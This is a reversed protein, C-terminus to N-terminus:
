RAAYHTAVQVPTLKKNWISWADMDVAGGTPHQLNNSTDAIGHTYGTSADQVGNLYILAKGEAGTRGTPTYNAYIAFLNADSVSATGFPDTPTGDIGTVVTGDSVSSNKARHTGGTTEVGIQMVVSDSGLIAGSVIGLWVDGAQVSCSLPFTVWRRGTTTLRQAPSQTLLQGPEGNDDAYVVAVLDQPTVGADSYHNLDAVVSTIQGKEQITHKSVQLNNESTADGARYDPPLALLTTGQVQNGFIPTGTFDGNYVGAVHYITNAVLTTASVVTTTNGSNSLVWWLKMGPTAKLEYSSAKGMVTVTGSPASPLRFWGELAAGGTTGDPAALSSSVSDAVIWSGSSSLRLASGGSNLFGAILTGGTVVAYNQHFLDDM